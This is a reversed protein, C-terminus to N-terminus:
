VGKRFLPRGRHICPQLPIQIEVRATEWMEINTPLDIPDRIALLHDDVPAPVFYKKGQTRFPDTLQIQITLATYRANAEQAIPM